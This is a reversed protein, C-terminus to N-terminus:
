PDSFRLKSSPSSNVGTLNAFTPVDKCGSALTHSLTARLATLSLFEHESSLCTTVHSRLVSASHPEPIGRTCPCAGVHVSMSGRAHVRGWTCPTCPHARHLATVTLESAEGARAPHTCLPGDGLPTAQTASPSGTLGGFRSAHLQSPYM